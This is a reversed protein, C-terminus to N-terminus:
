QIYGTSSKTSSKGTQSTKPRPLEGVLKRFEEELMQDLQAPSSVNKLTEKLIEIQQPNMRSLRMDLSLVSLLITFGLSVPRGSHMMLKGAVSVVNSYTLEDVSITKAMNEVGRISKTYGISVTINIPQSNALM